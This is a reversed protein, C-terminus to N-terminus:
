SGDKGDKDKMKNLNEQFGPPVLGKDIMGQMLDLGTRETNPHNGKFIVREIAKHMGESILFDLFDEIPVNVKEALGNIANYDTDDMVLGFSKESVRTVKM